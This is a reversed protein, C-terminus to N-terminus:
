PKRGALPDPKKDDNKVRRKIIMGDLVGSAILARSPGSLGQHGRIGANVNLM